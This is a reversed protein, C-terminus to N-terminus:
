VQWNTADAICEFRKEANELWEEVGQHHDEDIADLPMNRFEDKEM